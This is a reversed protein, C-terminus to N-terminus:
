LVGRNCIDAFISRFSSTLAFGEIRRIEQMNNMIVVTPISEINFRKCLNNFHDVDIALFLINKYKKEMKDLTIVMKKHYPMWSSYFYLSQLDNSLEDENTIFNM